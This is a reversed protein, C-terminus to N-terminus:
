CVLVCMNSHDSSCRLSPTPSIGTITIFYINDYINNYIIIKIHLIKINIMYKYEHIIDRSSVSIYYVRMDNLTISARSVQEKLEDITKEAMKTEELLNEKQCRLADLEFNKKEMLKEQKAHEQKESASLDRM